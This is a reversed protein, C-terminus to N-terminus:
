QGGTLPSMERRLLPGGDDMSNRAAMRVGILLLRLEVAM